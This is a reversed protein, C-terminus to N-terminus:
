KDKKENKDETRKGDRKQENRPEQRHQEPAPREVRPAPATAPQEQRQPRDFRPREQQPATGTPQQPQQAPRAERPTAPAGPTAPAQQQPPQRYAPRDERQPPASVSPTGPAQQQAPQRFAPRDERQPPASVSPSGQPLARPQAPQADPRRMPGHEDRPMVAPRETAQPSAVRVRQVPAAPGRFRDMEVRDLPRGQNREIAVRQTEFAVRPPPPTRVVTVTREVVRAPPVVPAPGVRGLVSVRVPAVPPASGIVTATVFPRGDLRGPGRGIPRAGVFVDREVVTVAGPARQNVYVTNVVTVNTVHTVNVRRLYVDTVRYTPRYVERPGLPFWAAGHFGPTGVFVVLAPAYVPRVGVVRQGPVWVWTGGWMVWRGYHFPAFGWPADDIWTWGWPEIWAWHGYRYPAWDVDVTRPRWVPGYEPSSAWTGNRDLDEYGVMDRPVYQESVSAQDESRDRSECWYDFEGQPLAPGIDQAITDMGIAKGTQRPRVAFGAGGGTVEANGSRVTVAATNADGDADIRYEGARLLTIAANPTDIEFSEDDALQRLRIHVSGDTLSLQVTRDDLNLVSLATKEGMRIATSGAHIEVRSGADAWLHDGTTLPYNLTAPAWEEVSDPRFSVSGTLYNIRAVRAPPDDTQALLPVTAIILLAQFQLLKRMTTRREDVEISANFDQSYVTSDM